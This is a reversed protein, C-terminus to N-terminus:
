QYVFPTVVDACDGQPVWDLLVSQKQSGSIDLQKSLAAAGMHSLSAGLERCPQGMIKIFVHPVCLAQSAQISCHTNCCQLLVLHLVM